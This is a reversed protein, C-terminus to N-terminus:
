ELSRGAAPAASAPPSPASQHALHVNGNALTMLIGSRCTQVSFTLQDGTAECAVTAPEDPLLPAIFKVKQLVTVPRNLAATVGTLVHDLLLAGPVIPRGPFHGPLAPHACPISFQFEFTRAQASM